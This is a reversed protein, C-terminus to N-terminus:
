EIGLTEKEFITSGKYDTINTSVNNQLRISDKDKIKEKVYDSNTLVFYPTVTIYTYYHTNETTFRWGTCHVGPKFTIKDTTMEAVYTNNPVIEKTKLNYTGIQVWDEGGNFKGYFTITENDKYTPAIQTFKNDGDQYEADNNTINYTFYDLYYDNYNMPNTDNELYLADDWTDYTVPNVGYDEPNDSLGGEKLTWPYAYGITETYYKFGKLENVEEKQLKDLDYSAYDWYTYFRRYWNNNGYKFLNFHGTPPTFAPDWYFTNSSTAKTDSDVQDVPDVIATVTNKLTYEIDKYTSKKHRTLVYDYRYEDRSLNEQTNKSSYYKVGSLKYGVLEYNPKGAEDTLSTGKTLDTVVDELTFNYKQTPNKQIYSRIEWVLYYYQDSDEPTHEMWSENWTRYLTPYRKQTSTIKANTNIYVSKEDSVNALTDEGSKVIIIANFPDSATGGNAVIDINTTDYDKYNFTPSKTAYAIEFYGNIGAKVEEPNYVIIYDKNEIYAMETTGDYEDSTPLSMIYKDDSNGKKNRLISKPITIQISEAPLEKLGSIAYNVRFTFEHGEASNEPTWVLNKNEDETAGSVFQMKFTNIEYNDNQTKIKIKGDTNEDNEKAIDEKKVPKIRSILEETTPKAKTTDPLDTQSEMITTVSENTSQSASGQEQTQTSANPSMKVEEDLTSPNQSEENEQDEQSEQSEESADNTSEEKENKENSTSTNESKGSEENLIISDEKASSNQEEAFVKIPTIFNSALMVIVLSLCIIRKLIGEVKVQKKEM